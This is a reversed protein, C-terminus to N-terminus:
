FELKTNSYYIWAWLIIFLIIFAFFYLLCYGKKGENEIHDM